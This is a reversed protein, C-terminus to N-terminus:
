SIPMSVPISRSLSISQALIASLITPCGRGPLTMLPPFRRLYRSAATSARLAQRAPHSAVRKGSTRQSRSPQPLPSAPSSRLRGRGSERWSLRLRLEGSTYFGQCHNVFTKPHRRENPNCGTNMRSEGSPTSHARQSIPSPHRSAFPAASHCDWRTFIPKGMRARNQQFPFGM